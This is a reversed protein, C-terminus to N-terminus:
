KEVELYPVKRRFWRLIIPIPFAEVWGITFFAYIVQRVYELPMRVIVIYYPVVIAMIVLNTILTDLLYDFLRRVTRGKRIQYPNWTKQTM